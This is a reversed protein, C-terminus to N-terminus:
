CQGCWDSSALKIVIGLPGPILMRALLYFALLFLPLFILRMTTLPTMPPPYRRSSRHLVQERPFACRRRSRHNCRLKFTM